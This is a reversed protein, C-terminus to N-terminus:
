KKLFFKSALATVVIVGGRLMQAVSPPLYSLGFFNLTSAVFDCTTPIL